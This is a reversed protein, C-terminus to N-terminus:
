IFLFAPNKNSNDMAVRWTHTKNFQETTSKQYVDGFNQYFSMSFNYLKETGHNRFHFM